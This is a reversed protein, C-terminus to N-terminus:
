LRLHVGLVGGFGSPDVSGATFVVERSKRYGGEVFLAVRPDLTYRLGVFGRGELGTRGDAPPSGPDTTLRAHRVGLSAGLYPSWPGQDFFAFSLPLGFRFISGDVTRDGLPTTGFRDLGGQLLVYLAGSGLPIRAGEEVVLSGGTGLGDAAFHGGLGVGLV